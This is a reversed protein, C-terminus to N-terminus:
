EELLCVFDEFSTIEARFGRTTYWVVCGKPNIDFVYIDIAEKAGSPTMVFKKCAFSTHDNCTFWVNYESSHSKFWDVMQTIVEKM